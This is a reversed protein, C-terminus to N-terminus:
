RQRPSADMACRFGLTNLQTDPDDRNRLAAQALFGEYNWGGGRYVKEEGKEPGTPNKRPSRAYYDKDYWDAVWEWVNGALDYVGYPSRGSAFSGVPALTEYGIWRAKGFLGYQDTPPENGWPYLRGDTGRAAKEWEAETPLRKGVWRCYADASLWSVGVIPRHKDRALNIEDFHRPPQRGTSELFTIYRGVTVEHRDLHFSDLYVRHVPAAGALEASGMTFEGAPILVMPAGDKGAPERPAAVPALLLVTLLCGVWVAARTM